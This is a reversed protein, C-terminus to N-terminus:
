RTYVQNTLFGGLPKTNCESPAGPGYRNWNDNNGAWCEGNYQVGFNKYGGNKALEYCDDVSKVSAGGIALNVPLARDVTDTWCGRYNYPTNCMPTATWQKRTGYMPDGWNNGLSVNCAKKGSCDPHTVEKESSVGASWLGYKYNIGTMTGSTCELNANEGEWGNVSNGIMSVKIQRVRDNFGARSCFSFESPGIVSHTNGDVNTLVAILGAPVKIYSSDVPFDVGSRFVGLGPLNKGPGSSSDCSELVTVLPGSYASTAPTEPIRWKSELGIGYFAGMSEEQRKRRNSIENIDTWGEQRANKALTAIRDKVDKWRSLQWNSLTSATPYQSGTRQGGARLFAKQLCDLTFPPPTNDNLETCFDYTDLAGRNFCLDRAAFELGGQLSSTAHDNVRKFEDLAQAAGLKGSRLSAQDMGVAAREQYLKYPASQSLVDIYNGDSGKRLADSLTGEDSCGASQVKQILCARSLSGNPLPTCIDAPSIVQQRIGQENMVFKPTPKPCSSGPTILNESSCSLNPNNPYAVKGGQIPIAKGAKTNWGCRGGYISAGIDECGSVKDCISKHYKEKAAQLDWMWTGVASTKFAGDSTGYAGRGNGPNQNNYVWGCRMNSSPDQNAALSVLHDFQDGNGTSECASQRNLFIGSPGGPAQSLLSSATTTTKRDTPVTVNALRYNYLMSPVKSPRTNITRTLSPLSMRMDSASPLPNPLTQGFFRQIDRTGTSFSDNPFQGSFGEPKNKNLAGAFM